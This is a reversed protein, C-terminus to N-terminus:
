QKTNCDNRCGGLWLEKINPVRWVMGCVHDKSWPAWLRYWLGCFKPVSIKRAKRSHIPLYLLSLHLELLLFLTQIRSHWIWHQLLFIDKKGRQVELKTDQRQHSSPMWVVEAPFIHLPCDIFQKNPFNEGVLIISDPVSPAHSSMESSNM